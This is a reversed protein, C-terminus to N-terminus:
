EHRLAIMPDVKAARRAPIWCALLAVGALALSVGAFTLPDTATVGYLLRALSRTLAFAGALGLGIGALTLMLGRRLVLLLVDAAQAGLAIRVGLEHTREAVSYAMIAYTGVSAMALAMLGFISLAWMLMEKPSRRERVMETMMRVEGLPLSADLAALERRVAPVIQEDVGPSRIVLNMVRVPIQAFPLYVCPEGLDDLDDNMVNEVVGIIEFQTQKDDGLTFRRGVPELGRLFRAAFAENALAVRPANADDQARFWRGRRLETGIAVFYGPTAIRFETHPERGKEFSPQGVIQFSNGDGSGSMPLAHVAGANTVGPLAAIRPLLQEFFTRRQQAEPYKDRPLALNMTVVHDPKIGLDARLIQMFSRVSVGAGILLILSLAIEGVVLANRMASRGSENSIGKGGEKLAEHVNTKTAQLAPALGFFVGTLVTILTTFALVRTNLGMNSWGPILKSMGVPTIKDPAEITWAALLIGLASGIFALLVSETLLQRILRGRTAGMALRVAIEKQRATARVLLLNAVNSCAILLVFIASGILAPLAVRVGRTYWVNLAVANASHGAEGDPFQQEIRKAMQDLDADVQALSVGPKLLGLVRLYHTSHDGKMGADFVLPTWLEGGNYPFDFDKPMVGIVTFPKDDLLIQKGVIQPDGGFRKQWFDHRLVAIEARGAEDEGPQFTRGLQARVGLADFFAASVVTGMYREPPGDGTLTHERSRMAVIEQLAKSQARWEMVNGPSVTAHQIGISLKREFIAVLRAENPFSFPRLVLADVVSFIFTNAAIGLAITLVAVVAFGPNKRIMRAGYHLDNSLRGMEMVGIQFISISSLLWVEPYV